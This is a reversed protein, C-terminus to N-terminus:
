HHSNRFSTLRGTASDSWVSLASVNRIGKHEGRYSKLLSAHSLVKVAVFENSFKVLISRPSAANPKFKGLRVASMVNEQVGMHSIIHKLCNGEHQFVDIREVKGENDLEPIGSFRLQCATFKYVEVNQKIQSSPSSYVCRQSKGDETARTATPQFATDM